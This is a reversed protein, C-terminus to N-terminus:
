RPCKCYPVHIPVARTGNTAYISATFNHKQVFNKKNLSGDSLQFIKIFIIFIYVNCFLIFYKWTILM